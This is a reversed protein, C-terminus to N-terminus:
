IVVGGGRGLGRGSEDMKVRGKENVTTFGCKSWERSWSVRMGERGGGGYCCSMAAPRGDRSPHWRRVAGIGASSASCLWRDPMPPLSSSSMSLCARRATHRSWPKERYSMILDYIRLSDTQNIMAHMRPTHVVKTFAYALSKHVLRSAPLHGKQDLLSSYIDFM